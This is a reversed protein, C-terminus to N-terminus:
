WDDGPCPAIPASVGAREHQALLAHDLRARLPSGPPLLYPFHEPISLDDRVAMGDLAQENAQACLVERPGAIAALTGQALSHFCDRVESPACTVQAGDPYREGVLVERHAAAEVLRRLPDGGLTPPPASGVAGTMGIVLGAVVWMVALVRGMTSGLVWRLGAWPGSVTADLRRWRVPRRVPFGTVANLLWSALALAVLAGIAYLAGRLAIRALRGTRGRGAAPAARAADDAHVMVTTVTSVYPQSLEFRDALAASAVSGDVGIDLECAALRARLTDTGLEILSLRWGERTALTHLLEIAYGHPERGGSGSIVFPPAAAFGVVLTDGKAGRARGAPCNAALLPGNGACMVVVSLALGVAAGRATSAM